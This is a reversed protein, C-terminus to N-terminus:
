FRVDIVHGWIDIIRRVENDNAGDCSLLRDLRHAVTKPIDPVRGAKYKVIKIFAKQSKICEKQVEKEEWAEKHLCIFMRCADDDSPEAENSDTNAVGARLNALAQDYEEQTILGDKLLMLLAEENSAPTRIDSDEQAPQTSSDASATRSAENATLIALDYAERSIEGNIYADDLNSLHDDSVSQCLALPLYSFQLILLCLTFRM